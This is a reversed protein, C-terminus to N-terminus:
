RRMAGTTNRLEAMPETRPVPQDWVAPEETKRFCLSIPWATPPQTNTSTCVEIRSRSSVPNITPTTTCPSKKVRHLASSFLELSETRILEWDGSVGWRDTHRLPPRRPWLNSLACRRRCECRACVAKPTRRWPFSHGRFRCPTINNQMQARRECRCPVKRIAFLKQGRDSSWPNRSNVLELQLTWLKESHPGYKEIRKQRLKEEVLQVRLEAYQLRQETEELKKQLAQEITLEGPSSSSIRALANLSRPIESATLTLYCFRRHTCLRERRHEHPIEHSRQNEEWRSAIGDDGREATDPYTQSRSRPMALPLM